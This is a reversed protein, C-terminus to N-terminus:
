CARQPLSFYNESLVARFPLHSRRGTTPGSASLKELEVYDSKAPHAETLHSAAGNNLSARL